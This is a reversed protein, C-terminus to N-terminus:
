PARSSTTSPAWTAITSWAWMCLSFCQFLTLDFNSIYTMPWMVHTSPTYFVFSTFLTFEFRCSSTGKRLAKRSRQALTTPLSQWWQYLAFCCALATPSYGAEPGLTPKQFDAGGGSLVEPPLPVFNAIKCAIVEKWGQFFLNFRINGLETKFGHGGNPFLSYSDLLYACSKKKKWIKTKAKLSEFNGKLYFSGDM